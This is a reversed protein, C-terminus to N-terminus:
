WLWRQDTIARPCMLGPPLQECCVADASGQRAGGEAWVRSRETVDESRATRRGPLTCCEPIEILELPM